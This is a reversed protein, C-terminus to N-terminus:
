NSNVPNYSNDIGDISHSGDLGGHSYSTDLGNQNDDFASRAFRDTSSSLESPQDLRSTAPFRGSDAGSSDGFRSSADGSGLQSTAPWRSGSEGTISGARSSLDDGTGSSSVAGAREEFSAGVSSAGWTSSGGGLDDSSVTSGISTGMSGGGSSVGATATAYEGMTQAGAHPAFLAIAAVFTGPVILKIFRM